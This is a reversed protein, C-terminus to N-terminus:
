PWARPRLLHSRRCTPYLLCDHPIALSTANISVLFKPNRNKVILNSLFPPCPHSVGRSNKGRKTESNERHASSSTTTIRAM